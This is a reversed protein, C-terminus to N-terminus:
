RGHKDGGEPTGEGEWGIPRDFGAARAHGGGGYTKAITGVNLGDPASRLSFHRKGDVGDYYTASFAPADYNGDCPVIDFPPQDDYRTPQCLMNGAESAMAGPVNAVPVVYGGIRMTRRSAKVASAVDAARARLMAGGEYIISLWTSEDAGLTWEHWVDLLKLMRPLDDVPEATLAAHFARSVDGYRFRWLDRDEILDIIRPRPSPQTGHPGHLYDWTLGAGSREMDFKAFIRTGIGEDWGPNDIVDERYDNWGHPYDPLEALAERATVHHDIVLVSRARQAMERLTALPYSFDVILVDRDNCPPPEDGYKAAVFDVAAGFRRHV